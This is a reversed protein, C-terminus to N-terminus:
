RYMPFIAMIITKRMNASSIRIQPTGLLSSITKITIYMTQKRKRAISM